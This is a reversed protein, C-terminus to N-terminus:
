HIPHAIFESDLTFYVCAGNDKLYFIHEDCELKYGLTILPLENEM